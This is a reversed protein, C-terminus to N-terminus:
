DGTDTPQEDQELAERDELFARAWKEDETEPQQTQQARAREALEGWEERASRRREPPTRDIFVLRFRPWFILDTTMVVISFLGFLALPGAVYAFHLMAVVVGIDILICVTLRWGGVLILVVSNKIITGLPLELLAIQQFLTNLLSFWIFICFLLMVIAFLAYSEMSVMLFLNLLIADGLFAMLVMAIAGQKFDQKYAKKFEHWTFFPEDRCMQLTLRHTAALAPGLPVAFVLNALLTLMWPQGVSCSAYFFMVSTISPLACVALLLNCLFLASFDRTFVEWWRFIGKKPPADKEVGPGPKNYNVRFLAM